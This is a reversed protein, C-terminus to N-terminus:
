RATPKASPAFQEAATRVLTSNPEGRSIAEFIEHGRQIRAPDAPDSEFEQLIKAITKEPMGKLLAVSEELKLQMLKEVADSSAM